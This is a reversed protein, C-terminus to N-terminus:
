LADMPAAHPAFVARLRSFVIARVDPTVAFVVLFIFGGTVALYAVTTLRDMHAPQLARMLLGAATAVVLPLGLDAIYWRRRENPLVRRFMITAPVFYAGNVLLWVLAAGPAGFLSVAYVTAPVLVVASAINTYLTLKPLGAAFQLYAPVSSLGYLTTGTVLLPVILGAHGATISNGTWVAVVSQAFLALTVGAPLVLLAIAQCAKHFIAAVGSEDQAALLQAFRPYVATNVPLILFWLAAAVTAAVSYYGLEQLPAMGSLIVKDAQTILMGVLSNASISAAFRWEGRVIRWDFRADAIRGLIRWILACMVITQLVTVVAQWAFFGVVSKSVFMLVLVAGCARLTSSVITTANLLVHRQLGLFAAQYLAFPFQFTTTIAMLRIATTVQEVPLQQVHVWHRAVFPASLFLLVGLLFAITYYILEFTRLLDRQKKGSLPDASLRAISRNLTAGIGLDFLGFIALLTAFFGILGYAEVGLYRLYTPIFLLSLASSWVGGILNAALNRKV